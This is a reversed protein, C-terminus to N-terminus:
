SLYKNIKLALRNITLKLINASHQKTPNKRTKKYNDPRTWM